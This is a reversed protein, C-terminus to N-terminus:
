LERYYIEDTQCLTRKISEVNAANQKRASTEILYFRYVRVVYHAALKSSTGYM